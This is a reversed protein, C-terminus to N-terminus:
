RKEGESGAAERAYRHIDSETEAILGPLSDIERLFWREERKLPDRSAPVHQRDGFLFAWNTPRYYQQWLRNKREIAQRLSQSAAPKEGGAEEKPFKLQRAFERAVAEHGAATLHVGDASFAPNVNGRLPTFLDVFPLGRKSAIERIGAVYAALTENRIEALGAAPGSPFFPTPAVPVLRGTRTGLQDLLEGHADLFKSLGDPGDLSEMKGFAIFVIGATTRERSDAVSGPQPDGAKTYFFRPRAQYFVTDGQWALNRLRLDRDPWALQFTEELFGDLDQEFTNTGGVLAITEGPKPDFVGKEFPPAPKEVAAFSRQLVPLEEGQGFGSLPLGAALFLGSVLRAPASRGQPFTKPSM